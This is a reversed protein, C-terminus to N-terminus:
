ARGAHPGALSVRHVWGASSGSLPVSVSDRRLRGGRTFRCLLDVDYELDSLPKIATGLAFSGQPSMRAASFLYQPADALWRGVAEYRDRATAKQTDTPEIVACLRELIGVTGNKRLLMRDSLPAFPTLANM